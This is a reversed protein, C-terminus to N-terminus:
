SAINETVTCLEFGNAIIYDLIKPLAEATEATPHLLILDGGKMNNIARSYIINVDRDRWDITDRTWMITKYGLSNAAATTHKSYSGSPPAFLNMEISLMKQVIDHCTKIEKYNGNFDLKGMDAHTTGHSAIEHGENKIRNVLTSNDNVWTGGVFFTTHMDYEKLTDLMQELHENGWYVNVMLTVKNSNQNGAYITGNFTAVTSIAEAQNLNIVTISVFFIVVALVASSFTTIM